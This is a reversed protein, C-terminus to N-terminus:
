RDAARSGSRRPPTTSAAPEATRAMVLILFLALGLTGLWWEQWVGYAAFAAALAATLSGGVAAAYLRPWPVRALGLWLWGVFLAFLAAGPMGLELWLQLAANHPHLPLRTMGPRVEDKGGPMARAADLGWGLLPREAIRDGVFSWILLRHGASGKLADAAALLKPAEALRPLTLPATLIGIVSLVAAVRVVRVRWHYLLAAMPLSALLATKAAADDLSLVTGAMAAAAILAAVVRGREILVATVPLLLIALGVAIQNLRFPRFVRVSVLRSLGGESVLDYGTLLLGIAIGAILLTVVRRPAVVRSAAAALALGAVFLGALRADLVLSRGPDLSWMASAAGWVLLAALIAAPLRLAAFRYPPSAAVLGAACLGAFAALPAVGHPVLALLPPLLLACTGLGAECWAGITATFPRPTAGPPAAVDPRGRPRNSKAPGGFITCRREWSHPRDAGPM